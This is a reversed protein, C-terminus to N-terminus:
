VTYVDTLLAGNLGFGKACPQIGAFKTSYADVTNYYAFIGQSGREWFMRQAEGMLEKRKVSDTTGRGKTVTALWQPDNWKSLNIASHPLLTYGIHEWVSETSFYDFKFPAQYYYKAFYTAADAINNVSITVGAAKAQQSLVQATEVVGPSVGASVALSVTLGAKGAAMLLSKAQEIDQERQPISHDYMPDQRSPWDNAVSAFRSGSFAQAVIQPRDAILRIAQRVRPDNFPPIDVRMEWTHYSYGHSVVTHLSSSAEVTPTLNFEIHDAGDIQGSVLANIRSTTPDAFDVFEVQDLYPKGSQWYNDNRVFVAQQGPMFSQYKFPGSGIPKKSDWGVPIMSVGQNLFYYPIGIDPYKLHFRVTRSDLKQIHNPNIAACLGADLAGAKPNMLRQFSFIVDDATVPKGDHWEAQRLRFTWYSLDSAPEYEEALWPMPQATQLDPAVLLDYLAQTRFINSYTADGRIPDLSDNTTNGDSVGLRFTGGRRPKTAATTNSAGTSSSGSGGCGALMVGSSAVAAAGLLDKRTLGGDLEDFV